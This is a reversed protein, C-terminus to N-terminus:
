IHILSLVKPGTDPGFTHAADGIVVVGPRWWSPCRLLAPGAYRVDDWSRIRRVM